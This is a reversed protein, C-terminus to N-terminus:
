HLDVKRSAVLDAARLERLHQSVAPQTMSFAATLEKVSRDSESLLSIIKRRAPHAIAKFVVDTSTM